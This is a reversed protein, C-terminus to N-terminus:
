EEKIRIEHLTLKAETDLCGIEHLGPPLYLYLPKGSQAIIPKRTDIFWQVTQNQNYGGYSVFQGGGVAFLGRCEHVEGYVNTVSTAPDLGMRHVGVDHTSLHYPPRPSDMWYETAGMEKAIREKYRGM